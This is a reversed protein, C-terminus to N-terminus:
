PSTSSSRAYVMSEVTSISNGDRDVGQIFIKAIKQNGDVCTYFGQKVGKPYINNLGSPCEPTVVEDSIFDILTDTQWTNDSYTGDINIPPGYRKIVKPGQWVSGANASEIFYRVYKDTNNEPNLIPINLLVVTNDEPAQITNIIEAMKIENAIFDLARNLELRALSQDESKASAQMMQLLAWGAGTLVISSMSAALLLELMTFGQSSKSKFIKKIM